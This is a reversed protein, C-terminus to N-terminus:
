AADMWRRVRVVTGSGMTSTIEFDDVLRRVGPLGLGLTGGTSVNDRLADEISVIGPGRDSAVVEICRGGDVRRASIQVRGREAYKAINGALEAVVTAIRMQEVQDLGCDRAFSRADLSAISADRPDRIPVGLAPPFVVTTM